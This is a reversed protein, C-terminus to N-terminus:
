IRGILKDSINSILRRIDITLDAGVYFDKIKIHLEIM